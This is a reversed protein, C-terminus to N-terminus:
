EPEPPTEAGELREKHEAAERRRQANEALLRRDERDRRQRKRDLRIADLKRPRKVGFDIECSTSVVFVPGESENTNTNM